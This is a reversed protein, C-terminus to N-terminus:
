VFKPIFLQQGVNIKNEDDIGNVSAIAGITSKFKKAINWLTDGPKVFYVVISYINDDGDELTDINDIVKVEMMKSVDSNINLEINAEVSGDGMMNFDKASVDVITNLNSNQTVGPCDFSNSFPITQVKLDLRNNTPSIFMFKVQLEGDYIIKDNYISQKIIRPMVETNCIKANILEPINM